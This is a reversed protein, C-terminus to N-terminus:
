ESRGRHQRQQLPPNHSAARARAPATRRAYRPARLAHVRRLLLLLLVPVLPPSSGPHNTTSRPENPQNPGVPPLRAPLCAGCLSPRCLGPMSPCPRHTDLSGWRSAQSCSWCRTSGGIGGEPKQRRIAGRHAVGQEQCRSQGARAQHGHLRICAVRRSCRCRVACHRTCTVGLGCRRRCGCCCCGWGMSGIAHLRRVACIRLCRRCIASGRWSGRGITGRRCCCAVACRWSGGITSRGGGWAIAGGWGRLGGITAISCLRLCLLGRGRGCRSGRITLSHLRSCAHISPRCISPGAVRTGAVSQVM